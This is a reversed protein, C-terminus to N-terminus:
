CHPERHIVRYDGLLVMNQQLVQGVVILLRYVVEVVPEATRVVRDRPAYQELHLPLPYEPKGATRTLVALVVAVVDESQVVTEPPAPGYLLEVEVADVREGDVPVFLVVEVHQIPGVQRALRRQMAPRVGVPALLQELVVYAYMVDGLHVRDLGRLLSVPLLPEVPDVLAPGVGARCQRRHLADLEILEHESSVDVYITHEM